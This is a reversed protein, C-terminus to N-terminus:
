QAISAAIGPCYVSHEGNMVVSDLDATSDVVVGPLVVSNSIRIPHRIVVDDGIVSHDVRV